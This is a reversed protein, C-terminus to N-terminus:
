VNNLVIFWDQLRGEWAQSKVYVTVNNDATCSPSMHKQLHIMCPTEPSTGFNYYINHTHGVHVCMVTKVQLTMLCKQYRGAPWHLSAHPKSYSTNLMREHWCLSSQLSNENALLVENSISFHAVFYLFKACKLISFHAVFYLFKACKLHFRSM